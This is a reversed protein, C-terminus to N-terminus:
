DPHGDSFQRARVGTDAALVDALERDPVRITTVAAAAIRDLRFGRIAQRLRCWAVLYWHGGAVLLGVPEVTRSSTAGDAAAYDLVLAYRDAIGQEVARRVAPDTRPAAGGRHVLGAARDAATRAAAPTVAGVKALGRRAQDHFPAGASAAVAISLALSEAATLNVPPLTAEALISWGGGRGETWHLPVGAELLAQLDRQVTRNSVELDAALAAVTRRAPATARLSEVLAYLRETRNM